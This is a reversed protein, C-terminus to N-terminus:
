TTRIWVCEKILYNDVTLGIGKCDDVTHQDHRLQVNILLFLWQMLIECFQFPSYDTNPILPHKIASIWELNRRWTQHYDQRELRTVELM